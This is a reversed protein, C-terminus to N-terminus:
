GARLEMVKGEGEGEGEILAFIRRTVAEQVRQTEPGYHHRDYVEAIGGERHNQIRNMADRGFGLGTVLTGHTRRLDHPTVKDPAVMALGTCVVRMAHDLRTVPRGREGPSLAFGSTAGDGIEALLDRAPKTLWVRHSQGNKTGPWGLRPDPDGPLEWWGDRIHERRMHAVEGPRQGTLLILKLATSRTLGTRDFAAWFRPLEANGLVRERSKTDNFTVGHCPNVTIDGVEERIAWAFIASAAKLMQNATMPAGGDTVKRMVTRVDGRTIDRARLKGWRPLLLRTVLADAQRWSRNVRQAHELHRAAVEAFTEARAGRLKEAQPDTGRAVQGLLDRAKERADALGIADARGITFVRLRGGARYTFRWSRRGSPQVALALGRAVEDWYLKRDPSPIVTRVFRETLRVKTTPKPPLGDRRPRAM